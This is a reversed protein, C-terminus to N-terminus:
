LVTFTAANSTGRPTTVTITHSGLTAASDIRLYISMQGDSTLSASSLTVGSGSITIGRNIMEIAGTFNYGYLRVLVTNAFSGGPRSGSSPAISTITPPGQTPASVATANAYKQVSNAGGEDIVWFRPTFTGARSYSHTMVPTTLVSFNVPKGPEGEDGWWVAYRLPKGEPDSATVTWTGQENVKITAPGSIASITPAQNPPPPPPPPPAVISLVADSADSYGNASVTLRYDDRPTAWTPVTWTYSGSEISTGAPFQYNYSSNSVSTINISAFGFVQNATWTITYTKGTEWREGGNPSLVKIGREALVTQCKLDPGNIYLYNQLVVVDAGTPLGDGNVDAKNATTASDQPGLFVYNTIADIDSKSILKDNNFDGCGSAPAARTVDPATVTANQGGYPVSSFPTGDSWTIHLTKSTVLTTGFGGYFGIPSTYTRGASGASVDAFIDITQLVNAPIAASGTFAYSGNAQLAVVTAGFQVGGLSVSLNQLRLSAGVDGSVKFNLNTLRIGEAPAQVAFSAIKTRVTGASVNAGTFASNITGQFIPTTPTQAGPCRLGPGNVYLYNQLVVVDSATPLGDGNVDAKNATTASDQPGLFVYNQLADIDKKTILKDNDFDGCSSDAKKSEIVVPESGELYIEFEGDNYSAPDGVRNWDYHIGEDILVNWRNAGTSQILYYQPDNSDVPGFVQHGRDNYRSTWNALHSLKIESGASYYGLNYTASLPFSGAYSGIYQVVQSREPYRLTLPSALALEAFFSNTTDVKVVKIEELNQGDADVLVFKDASFSYNTKDFLSLRISTSGPLAPETLRGVAAPEVSFYTRASSDYSKFKLAYSGSQTVKLSQGTQPLPIGCEPYYKPVILNLAAATQADVAGTAQLGNANQFRTVAATTLRGYYGTIFGEPYWGGQKLVLQLLFVSNNQSGFKLEPLTCSVRPNGPLEDLTVFGGAPPPLPAIRDCNDCPVPTTVPLPQVSQVSKSKILLENIQLQIAQIQDSLSRLNEATAALLPSPTFSGYQALAPSAFINVVAVAGLVAFVLSKRLM